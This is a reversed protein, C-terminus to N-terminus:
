VCVAAQARSKPTQWLVMGDRQLGWEMAGVRSKTTGKSASERRLVEVVVPQLGPGLATGLLHLPQQATPPDGAEARRSLGGLGPSQPRKLDVRLEPASFTM